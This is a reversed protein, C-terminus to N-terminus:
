EGILFMDLTTAPLVIAAPIEIMQGLDYTTSAVTNIIRSVGEVGLSNKALAGVDTEGGAATAGTKVGQTYVRISHNTKDYKYVFGDGPAPMISAFNIAKRFGFVGIAPLPIGNAPYTLAGGGFAISVLSMNKFAGGGAIERDGPNVTVAVNIAALESM